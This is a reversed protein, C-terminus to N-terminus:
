PKQEIPLASLGIAFNDMALRVSVNAKLYRRTKHLLQYFDSNLSFDATNLDHHLQHELLETFELASERTFAASDILELREGISATATLQKLLRAASNLQSKDPVKRVSAAADSVRSLITPLLLDPQSTVLYIQSNGPPEELIKLLANQAPLTLTEAANIIVTNHDSMLPKRSLFHQVQRVADIGLSKEPQLSLVDASPPIDPPSIVLFAHM